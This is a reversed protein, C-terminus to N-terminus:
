IQLYFYQRGVCPVGSCSEVTCEQPPGQNYPCNKENQMVYAAMSPSSLEKPSQLRM